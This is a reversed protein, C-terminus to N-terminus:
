KLANRWWPSEGTQPLATIPLATTCREGPYNDAALCATNIISGGPPITTIISFQVSEGPNLIPITLTITSGSISHSLPTGESTNVSDVQWGAQLIDTVVVNNGPGDGQNSVTIAWQIQIETAGPVLFGLKSITPEFSSASVSAPASTPAPTATPPIPLIADGCAHGTTYNTSPTNTRGTRWMKYYCAPGNGDFGNADFLVMPTYNRIDNWTGPAGLGGFAGFGGLAAIPNNPDRTWVLGDPSTAYGIGEDARGDGGSYWMEWTGDLKQRVTGSTVHTADWTGAGGNPFIPTAADTYRTWAIGDDSYALGIQQIGGTTADYYMVYRRDVPSTNGPSANYIVSVPGYSGRQWWTPDSSVGGVGGFSVQDNEWTIGDTSEAYRISCSLDGNLPDCPGYLESTDWYWIKYNTSGGGFGSDDYLVVVHHANTLGPLTASSDYTTWNIGDDSYALQIGGAGNTSWLKYYPAVAYTDAVGGAGDIDDGMSNGFAGQQYIVAPYYSRTLPDFVPNNVADDTWGTLTQSQAEGTMVGVLIISIFFLIAANKYRIIGTM